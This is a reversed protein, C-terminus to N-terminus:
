GNEVVRIELHCGIATVYRNLTSLSPSHRASGLSSELRGVVSTSTGMSKAVEAQTLGAKNRAAIIQRLVSFEIELADYEAKVKKKSLAKKVIQDHTLRAM